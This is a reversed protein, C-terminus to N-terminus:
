SSRNSRSIHLESRHISECLDHPSETFRITLRALILKYRIMLQGAPPRHSSMKRRTLVNLVNSILFRMASNTDGCTPTAASSIAAINSSGFCGSCPSRANGHKRKAFCNRLAGGTIALSIKSWFKAVVRGAPTDRTSGIPPYRLKVNAVPAVNAFAKCATSAWPVLNPDVSSPAPLFTKTSNEETFM